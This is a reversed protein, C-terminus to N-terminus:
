YSQEKGLVTANFPPPSYSGVEISVGLGPFRGILPIAEFWLFSYVLRLGMVILGSGLM